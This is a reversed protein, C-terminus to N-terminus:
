PFSKNSYWVASNSKPNGFDYEGLYCPAYDSNFIDIPRTETFLRDIYRFM